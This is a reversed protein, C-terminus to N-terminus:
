PATVTTSHATPFFIQYYQGSRGRWRLLPNVHNDSTLHARSWFSIFPSRIIMREHCDGHALPSVRARPGSPRSRRLFHDCTIALTRQSCRQGHYAKAVHSGPM